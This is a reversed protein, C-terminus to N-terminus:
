YIINTNGRHHIMNAILFFICGVIHATIFLIFVLTFLKLINKTNTSNKTTTNANINTNTNASTNANNYSEVGDRGYGLLYKSFQLVRNPNTNTNTKTNTNSNWLSSLLLSSSLNNIDILRLLRNLRLLSLTQVSKLYGINGCLLFLDTPVSALLHFGHYHNSVYNRFIMDRDCVRKDKDLYTVFSSQLIIDIVFLLDGIIIIIIIIIIINMM